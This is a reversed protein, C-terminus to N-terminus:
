ISCIGEWGLTERHTFTWIYLKMNTTHIKQLISFKTDSNNPISSPSFLFNQSPTSFTFPLAPNTMRAPSKKTPYLISLFILSYGKSGCERGWLLSPLSSFRLPKPSCDTPRQSGLLIQLDSIWPMSSFPSWHCFSFTEQCASWRCFALKIQLSRESGEM